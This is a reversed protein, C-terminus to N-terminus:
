LEALCIDYEDTRLAFGAALEVIRKADSPNRM